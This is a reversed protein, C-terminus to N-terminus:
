GGADQAALIALQRGKQWCELDVGKYETSLAEVSNVLRELEDFSSSQYDLLRPARGIRTAPLEGARLSSDLRRFTEFHEEFLYMEQLLHKRQEKLIRRSSKEDFRRELSALTPQCCIILDIGLALQIVQERRFPASRGYIRSYVDESLHGRVFIMLDSAYAVEYRRFQSQQDQHVLAVADHQIRDKLEDALTSKGSGNPGEILIRM